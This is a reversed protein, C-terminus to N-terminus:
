SRGSATPLSKCPLVIVALGVLILAMGISRVSGFVEGLMLASAVVGICPAIFAFPAVMVVPYRSLLHGWIAYALITGFAGLYIAAAISSWSAELLATILSTDTDNLRSVALAPLPPVLSLWAALSLMPVRGVRRILVNGVAWSFASALALGLGLLPLDTGVTLGILALGAFAVVMGVFQQVTPVERLFVAALIVTFFAQTQQTVSAVGAPMGNAYAFFLLM